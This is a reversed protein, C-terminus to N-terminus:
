NRKNKTYIPFTLLVVIIIPDEALACRESGSGIVGRLGVIVFFFVVVVLVTLCLSLREEQRTILLM